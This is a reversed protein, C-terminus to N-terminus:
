SYLQGFYLGGIAIDPKGDGNLDAVVLSNGLFPLDEPFIIPSKFTGDGNGLLINLTYGSVALDAKGDGNFDAVAMGSPFGFGAAFDTESQFTGDGNGLLVGISSSGRGFALDPRGDGNFDGVAALSSAVTATSFASFFTGDGNGLLVSLGSNTEVALDQKGDMNFDGVALAYAGNPSQLQVAPKFTGDGNGLLVSVQTADAVAIDAKGDNNFDGLAVSQPDRGVAYNVVPRFGGEPTTMVTQKLTTSTSPAYTSDGGYYARVSRAGALLTITSLTAQGANLKASGLVTAGDYFTVNGSALAPTVSAALQVPSGFLSPNPSTSLM